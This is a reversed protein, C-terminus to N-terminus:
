PGSLKTKGLEIQEKSFGCSRCEMAEGRLGYDAVLEMAEGCEPCLEQPKDVFM